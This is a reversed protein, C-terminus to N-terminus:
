EIVIEKDDVQKDEELITTKNLHNVAVETNTFLDVAKLNIDKILVPASRVQDISPTISVDFSIQKSPLFLGEGHTVGGINWSLSNARQNFSVSDKKDGSISGDWIVGTPLVASVIVDKLDNNYSGVEITLTYTTKKGVRPPLEGDKYKGTVVFPVQTGVKILLSNTLITKNNRIPSPIDESDISARTEIVFNTDATSKIPLTEMIPITFHVQGSEHPELLKLAPIDSAKWTVLSNVSDYYGKDDLDLDEFNLVKSDLYVNLIADRIPLNSDNLFNITYNLENGAYVTNDKINRAHQSLVIPASVIIPSYKHTAYIINDQSAQAEVQARFMQVTGVDGSLVGQLRMIQEGQSPLSDIFWTKDQAFYPEASKFSFTNPYDIVLKINDIPRRSTNHCTIILDLSSGGVVEKPSEFDVVIPSSTIATTSKGQVSYIVSTKKPQYYLDGIINEM